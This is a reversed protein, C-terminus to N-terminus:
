NESLKKIIKRLDFDPAIMWRTLKKVPKSVLLFSLPVAAACFLVATKQSLFFDLFEYEEGLATLAVVVFLHLIYIYTSNTGLRTFINRKSPSLGLTFLFFVLGLAYRIVLFFLYKKRGVDFFDDVTSYVRRGSLLPVRLFDGYNIVAFILLVFAAISLLRFVTKKCYAFKCDATLYGFIFYPFYNIFRQFNGYFEDEQFSLLLAVTLSLPLILWKHKFIKLIHPTILQYIGIALLYWLGFYPKLFSFNSTEQYGVIGYFLMMCIQCILYPVIIKNIVSIWDGTDIRRKAFRGSVAMFVPMHFVYIWNYLTSIWIEKENKYELVNILVEALHGIVVTLILFAKANDFWCDREKLPAANATNNM